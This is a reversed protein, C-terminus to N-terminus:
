YDLFILNMILFIQIKIKQMKMVMKKMKNNMKMKKNQEINNDNNQQLEESNGNKEIVEKQPIIQNNLNYNLQQQNSMIPNINESNNNDNLKNLNQMRPNFSAANPIMNNIPINARQLLINKNNINNINNDEELPIKKININNGFSNRNIENNILPGSRSNNSSILNLNNKEENLPPLKKIFTRRGTPNINGKNNMQQKKLAQDFGIPNNLRSFRKTISLEHFRGDDDDETNAMPFPPQSQNMNIIGPKTETKYNPYNNNNDM